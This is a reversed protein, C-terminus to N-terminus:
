FGFSSEIKARADLVPSKMIETSRHHGAHRFCANLGVDNFCHDVMDAAVFGPNGTDIIACGICIFLPLSQAFPASWTSAM